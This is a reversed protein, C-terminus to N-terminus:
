KWEARCEQQWALPDVPLRVAGSFIALDGPKGAHAMRERRLRESLFHILEEKQRPPLLEAAEEIEALTSM